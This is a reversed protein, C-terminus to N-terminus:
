GIYKVLNSRWSMMAQTAAISATSTRLIYNGLKVAICGENIAFQIETKSWGGEPGIVIWIENYTSLSDNLLNLLDAAYDLRTTGITILSNTRSQNLRNKFSTINKFEPKTWNLINPNNGEKIKILM